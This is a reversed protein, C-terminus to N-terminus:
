LKNFIIFRTSPPRPIFIRLAAWGEPPMPKDFGHRQLPLRSWCWPSTTQWPTQAKQATVSEHSTLQVQRVYMKSTNCLPGGLSAGYGEEGASSWLASAHSLSGWNDRNSRHHSASIIAQRPPLRPPLPKTQWHRYILPGVVTWFCKELVFNSASNGIIAIDGWAVCHAGHLSTAMIPLQIACPHPNNSIPTPLLTHHFQPM